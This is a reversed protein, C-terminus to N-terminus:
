ALLELVVQALRMANQTGFHRRTTAPSPLEHSAAMDAMTPWRETRLRWACFAQAMEDMTWARVRRGGYVPECGAERVAQRWSGFMRKATNVSPLTRDGYADRHRPARGTRAAFRRLADLVMPRTWGETTETVRARRSALMSCYGVPVGTRKAIQPFTLGEARLARVQAVQRDTYRGCRHNVGRPAIQGAAGKKAADLAKTAIPDRDLEALAMHADLSWGRADALMTASDGLDDILADLSVTRKRRDRFHMAKFRATRMLYGGIPGPDLTDAKQALVLWAEQVADEADQRTIGRVTRLVAEVLGDLQDSDIALSLDSSQTPNAM